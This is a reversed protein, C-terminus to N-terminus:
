SLTISYGIVPTDWAPLSTGRLHAYANRQSANVAFLAIVTGALVLLLVSIANLQFFVALEALCVGSM